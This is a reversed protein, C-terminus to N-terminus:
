HYGGVNALTRLQRFTAEDVHHRSIALKYTKQTPETVYFHLQLICVVGFDLYDIRNLYAQWLEDNVGLQWLDKPDKTALTSLSPQTIQWLICAIGLTIVILCQWWTLLTISLIIVTAVFLIQLWALYHSSQVDTDIYMM